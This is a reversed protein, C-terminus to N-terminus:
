AAAGLRGNLLRVYPRGRRYDIVNLCGYDQAFAFCGSLPLGLAAGLIVRNVSNHAVLAVRAGAHRARLEALAPEVRRWVDVFAEGGEPMRFDVMSSYPRTALEPYRAVATARPLGELCGLHMERWRPDATAALGHRMAVLGAGELARQLDSAYVAVLRHDALHAALRAMQDRGVPALPVDTHGYFSGEAQTQGHRALFLLM